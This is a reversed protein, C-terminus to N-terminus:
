QVRALGERAEPYDPRLEIAKKYQAAAGEMDGLKENAHGLWYRYEANAPDLVVAKSLNYRAEDYEGREMYVRGLYFYAEPYHSPDREVARSLATLAEEYEKRQFRVQGLYSWALANTPDLRVAQELEFLADDLRGKVALLAGYRARVYADQPAVAVARKLLSLAEDLQGLSLKTLALNYLVIPDENNISLAKEFAEAAKEPDGKYQYILGRQNYIAYYEPNIREADNLVLLAQDLLARAAERDRANIYQDTYAQALAVYAPTYSADLSIAAKLNEVAPSFLRLRLQARALGYLAEVNKEDLEVARKFAILAADYQGADYYQNGLLVYNQVSPQAREESDTQAVALAPLVALGVTLFVPLWLRM